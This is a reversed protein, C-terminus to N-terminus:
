RCIQDHGFLQGNETRKPVGVYIRRYKLHHTGAPHVNTIHYRRHIRERLHLGRHLPGNGLFLNDLNLYLPRLDLTVATGDRTYM